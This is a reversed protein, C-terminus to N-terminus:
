QGRKKAVCIHIRLYRCKVVPELKSTNIDTYRRELPLPRGRNSQVAYRHLGCQIHQSSMGRWSQRHGSIYLPLTSCKWFNNAPCMSTMRYFTTPIIFLQSLVPYGFHPSPVHFHFPITESLWIQEFNSNFGTFTSSWFKYVIEIYVPSQWVFSNKTSTCQYTNSPWPSILLQNIYTTSAMLFTNQVTYDNSSLKLTPM